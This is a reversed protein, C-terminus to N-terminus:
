AQPYSIRNRLSTQFDSEKEHESVLRNQVLLNHPILCQLHPIKGRRGGYKTNTLRKLDSAILYKCEKWTM